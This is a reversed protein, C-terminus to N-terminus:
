EMPKIMSEIFNIEDETLGYKAYLQQDIEAVSKSWDIDSNSAFGQLIIFQVKDSSFNIIFKQLYKIMYELLIM